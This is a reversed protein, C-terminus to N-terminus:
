IYCCFLFFFFLGFDTFRLFCMGASCSVPPDKKLDKLEKQIRKLAMAVFCKRGGRCGFCVWDIGDFGGCFWGFLM